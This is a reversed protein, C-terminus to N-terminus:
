ENILHALTIHAELNDIASAARDLCEQYRTTTRRLRNCNVRERSAEVMLARVNEVMRALDLRLRYDISIIDVQAQDLRLQLQLYQDDM